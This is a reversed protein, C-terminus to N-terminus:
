THLDDPLIRFLAAAAGRVHARANQLTQELQTIRAQGETEGMDHMREAAEWTADTMYDLDGSGSHSYGILQVFQERDEQSFRKRALDNMDLGGNDLLYVVLANPKFRLIGHEDKELPQIPQKM